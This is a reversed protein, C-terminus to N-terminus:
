LSSCETPSTIPLSDNEPPVFLVFFFVWPWEKWFVRMFFLICLTHALLFIADIVCHFERQVHCHTM